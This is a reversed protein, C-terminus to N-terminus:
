TCTWSGDANFACVGNPSSACFWRGSSGFHCDYGCTNTGDSNLKCEPRPASMVPAPVSQASVQSCSVHGDAGMACVGDPSNACAMVGDAGMLCHYGCAQRGDAGMRCEAQVPGSAYAGSNGEDSGYAGPTVCGAIAFVSAVIASRFLTM